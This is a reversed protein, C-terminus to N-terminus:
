PRPPNLYGNAMLWPELAEELIDQLTNPTTGSLQRELSARKLATAFDARVRTSLPLRNVTSANQRNAPPNQVPPPTQVQGATVSEATTAQGARVFQNEVTRDVSNQPGMGAVISRRQNM